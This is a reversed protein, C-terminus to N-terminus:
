KPPAPGVVSVSALRLKVTLTEQGFLVPIQAAQEASDSGPAAEAPADKALAAPQSNTASLLRLLVLPQATIIAGIAERLNTQDAVFEVDFPALSLASLEGSEASSGADQGETEAPLPARSVAVIERVRAKVLLSAINSISELQQGLLPAAAPAPPQTRYQGFGLYFDEPLRTGATEAEKVVLGAAANLKDQFQQPTLSPNLPAAQLAVASSLEGLIVAAREAELEASKLNAVDPFPKGSQLRVLTASNTTYSEAAANFSGQQSLLFYLAAAAALATIVALAGAFPNQKFWNM